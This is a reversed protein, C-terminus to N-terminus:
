IKGRCVSCLPLFRKITEGPSLVLVHKVLLTSPCRVCSCNSFVEKLDSNFLSQQLSKFDPM